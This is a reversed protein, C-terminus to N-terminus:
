SFCVARVYIMYCASFRTEGVDLCTAPLNSSAQAEDVRFGVVLGPPRRWYPSTHPYSIGKKILICFLYWYTNKESEM